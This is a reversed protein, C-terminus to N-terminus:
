IIFILVDSKILNKTHSSHKQPANSSDSCIIDAESVNAFTQPTTSKAEATNADILVVKKIFILVFFLSSFM